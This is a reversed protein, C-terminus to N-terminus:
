AMSVSKDFNWVVIKLSYIDAVRNFNHNILIEDDM